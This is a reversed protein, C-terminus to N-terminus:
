YDLMFLCAFYRFPKHINRTRFFVGMFMLTIHLLVSTRIRVGNRFGVVRMFLRIIERHCFITWVFFRHVPVILQCASIIMNSVMNQPVRFVCVICPIIYRLYTNALLPMLYRNKSCNYTVSNRRIRWQWFWVADHSSTTTTLDERYIHGLTLIIRRKGTWQFYIKSFEQKWWLWWVPWYIPQRRSFSLSLIGKAAVLLCRRTTSSITFRSLFYSRTHFNSKMWANRSTLGRKNMKSTWRQCPM